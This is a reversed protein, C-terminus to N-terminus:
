NIIECSHFNKQDRKPCIEHAKGKNDIQSLSEEIKNTIYNCIAGYSCGQPHRTMFIRVSNDKSQIEFIEIRAKKGKPTIIEADKEIKDVEQLIKAEKLVRLYNQVNRNNLNSGITLLILNPTLAKYLLELSYALGLKGKNILDLDFGNDGYKYGLLAVNAVSFGVKENKNNANNGKKLLNFFNWFSSNSDTKLTCCVQHRYLCILKNKYEQKEWQCKEKDGWGNTEKGLVLVKFQSSFYSDPPYVLYPLAYNSKEIDPITDYLSMLSDWCDSLKKKIENM